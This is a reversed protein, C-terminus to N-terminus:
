KPVYIKPIAKKKGKLWFFGICFYRRTNAIFISPAMLFVATSMVTLSLIVIFLPITCRANWSIQM